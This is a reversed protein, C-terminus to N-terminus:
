IKYLYQEIEWDTIREEYDQWEKLKLQAYEDSIHKGLVQRVFDDKRFEEVAQYLNRPLREIGLEEVEEETIKYNNKNIPKPCELRNKIGDLGAALCVAM